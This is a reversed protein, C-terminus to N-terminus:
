GFKGPALLAQRGQGGKKFSPFNWNVKSKGGCGCARVAKLYGRVKPSAPCHQDKQRAAFGNVMSMSEPTKLNSDGLSCVVM